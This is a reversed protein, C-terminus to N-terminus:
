YDINMELPEERIVLRYIAPSKIGKAKLIKIYGKVMDLKECPFVSAKEIGCQIFTEDKVRIYNEGNKIILLEMSRNKRLGSGAPPLVVKKM